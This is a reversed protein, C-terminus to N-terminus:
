CQGEAKIVNIAAFVRRSSTLFAESPTSPFEQKMEEQQEIEKRIYWQKQEDLLTINMTQEVAAFYEQHYKSLRLGGDSVLRKM